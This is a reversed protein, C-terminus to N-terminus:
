RGTTCERMERLGVRGTHSVSQTSDVIIPLVKKRLVWKQYSEGRGGDRWGERNQREIGRNKREREGEKEGGEKTKKM